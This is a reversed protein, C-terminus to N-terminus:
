KALSGKRLRLGVGALATVAAVLVLATSWVSGDRNTLPLGYTPEDLYAFEFGTEDSTMAAFLRGDLTLIQHECM